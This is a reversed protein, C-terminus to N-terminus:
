QNQLQSFITATLMFLNICRSKKLTIEKKRLVIGLLITVKFQQHAAPAPGVQVLPLHSSVLLLLPSTSPSPSV